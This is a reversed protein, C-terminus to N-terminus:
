KGGSMSGPGKYGSTGRKPLPNSIYTDTGTGNGMAQTLTTVNGYVTLKPACYPKKM